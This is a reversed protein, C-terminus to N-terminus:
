KKKKKFIAFAGTALSGMGIMMSIIPNSEIGTAIAEKVKEVPKEIPSSAKKYFHVIDGNELKETRTYEYLPIEGPKEIAGSSEKLKENTGEEVWTTKLQHYVHTVTDRELDKDTTIYTYGGIEQKEVFKKGKVIDLIDTGNEDVFRTILQKFIYTVNGDEDVKKEKFVYGDIDGQEM